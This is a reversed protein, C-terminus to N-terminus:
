AELPMCCNHTESCEKLAIRVKSFFDKRSSGYVAESLNAAISTGSRILQSLLEREVDQKKLHRCLHIIRVAFSFSKASVLSEAM